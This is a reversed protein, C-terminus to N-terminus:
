HHNSPVTSCRSCRPHFDGMKSKSISTEKLLHHRLSLGRPFQALHQPSSHNPSPPRLNHCQITNYLHLTTNTQAPTSLPTIPYLLAREACVTYIRHALTTRFFLVYFVLSSYIGGLFFACTTTTASFLVIYALSLLAFALYITTFYKTRFFTRRHTQVILITSDHPMPSEWSTVVDVCLNNGM